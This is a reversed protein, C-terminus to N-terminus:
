ANQSELEKLKEHLYSSALPAAFRHGLDRLIAWASLNCECKYVVFGDPDALEFRVAPSAPPVGIHVAAVLVPVGLYRHRAAVYLHAAPDIIALADNLAGADSHSLHGPSKLARVGGEHECGDPQLWVFQALRDGFSGFGPPSVGDDFHAAPYEFDEPRGTM